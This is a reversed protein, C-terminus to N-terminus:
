ESSESKLKKEILKLITSRPGDARNEESDKLVLLESEDMNGIVDQLDKVTMEKEPTDTESIDSSIEAKPKQVILYKSYHIDWKNGQKKIIYELDNTNIENIGPKFAFHGTEKPLYAITKGTNNVTAM